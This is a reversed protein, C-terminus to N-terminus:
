HSKVRLYQGVYIINRSLRNLEKLKKISIGFRQSIQLLSDGKRVKYHTSSTKDLPSRLILRRGAIIRSSKLNNLEKLRRVPVDYIRAIHYLTQGRAIIHYNASRNVYQVRSLSKIVYKALNLGEMDFRTALNDPIWIRYRQYKPPTINKRIHPNYKKLTRLPIKTAKAIARLSIPSPVNVPVLNPHPSKEIDHFGYKERNTGIFVAAMFKPIYNITERPLKRNKVLDWFNRSKSRTIARMIRSQGANYAAMALYWSHFMNNLDDLYLAAAITSRIPDKREDVYRNIALGYRKGTRKMFQWIGAAKASSLASIEFGSEIMALYYLEKPLNHENLIKEIMPRYREGRELYRRFRDRANKTYYKIWIKVRGNIELPIDKPMLKSTGKGMPPKSPSSPKNKPLSLPDTDISDLIQELEDHSLKPTTDLLPKEVPLREAEKDSICSLLYFLQQFIGFFILIKVRYNM